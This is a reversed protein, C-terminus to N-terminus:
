ISRCQCVLTRDYVVRSTKGTKDILDTEWEEDLYENKEVFEKRTACMDFVHNRLGRMYTFQRQCYICMHKSPDFDDSADSDSGGGGADGTTEHVSKLRELERIKDKNKCVPIHRELLSITKFDEDCGGCISTDVIETKERRRTHRTPNYTVEFPKKRRKKADDVGDMNMDVSANDNSYQVSGADTVDADYSGIEPLQSDDATKNKQWECTRKQRMKSYKQKRYQYVLQVSSGLM